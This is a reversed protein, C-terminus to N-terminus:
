DDKHKNNVSTIRIVLHEENQQDLIVEENDQFHYLTETRPHYIFQNGPRFESDISLSASGFKRAMMVNFDILPGNILSCSIVAEGPFELIKGPLLTEVRDEFNLTCGNGKLVILKRDIGPFLSFPGDQEVRAQSIRILFQFPDSPDPLRYLETTIGGGNKWPMEIYDNANFRKVM